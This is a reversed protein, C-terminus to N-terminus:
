KIPRVSLIEALEWQWDKLYKNRYFTSEHGCKKCYRASGDMEAGCGREDIGDDNINYDACKQFLYAKCKPCLREFPEIDKNHCVPCEMAHGFEDLPVGDRYKVWRIDKVTFIFIESGCIKCCNDRVSIDNNGCVGCHIAKKRGLTRLTNFNIKSLGLNSVRYEVAREGVFFYDSLRQISGKFEMYRRTFLEKPMLIQAAGENAQWERISNQKTFCADLCLNCGEPHFWYHMLEHMCDFNQGKETRMNNLAMRSKHRGKYMIGGISASHFNLYEIELNDKFYEAIKISDVPYDNEGIGLEKMKSDILSYFFPKKIYGNIIM